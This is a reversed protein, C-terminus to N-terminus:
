ALKSLGYQFKSILYDSCDRCCYFLNRAQLSEDFFNGFSQSQKHKRKKCWEYARDDVSDRSLQFSATGSDDICTTFVLIFWPRIGMARIGRVREKGFIVKRINEVFWSTLDRCTYKLVDCWAYNVGPLMWVYRHLLNKLIDKSHKVVRRDSIISAFYVAIHVFSDLLPCVRARIAASVKVLEEAGLTNSPALVMNPSVILMGM